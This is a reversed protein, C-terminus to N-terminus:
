RQTWYGPAQEPKTPIYSGAQLRNQSQIPPSVQCAAGCGFVLYSFGLAFIAYVALVAVLPGHFGSSVLHKFLALAGMLFHLCNGLSLPRAYIGGILSDKATWNAFAFSLYLAGLLQLLVPLPEAASAPLATLLEAPAFTMALGAAGLVLSSAVMLTRTNM